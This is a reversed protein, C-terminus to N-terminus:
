FARVLLNLPITLIVSALLSGILCGPMFHFQVNCGGLGMPSGATRSSHAAEGLQRERFKRVAYVLVAACIVSPLLGPAGEHDFAYRTVLYATLSGAAGVLITQFISMPDPGPILLRALPGVIVGLLISSLILSTADM